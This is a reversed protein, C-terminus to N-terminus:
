APPRSGDIAARIRETASGILDVGSADGLAMLYVLCDALEAQIGPRTEDTIPEDATFQLLAAIAGVRGALALTLNHPTQLPSWGHVDSLERFAARLEDLSTGPVIFKGTKQLAVNM